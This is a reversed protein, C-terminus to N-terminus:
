NKIESWPPRGTLMEIVTCGVSWIDAFRTYGEGRLIEPAIWNPTGLFKENGEQM